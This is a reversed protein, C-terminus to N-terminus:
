RCVEPATQNTATQAVKLPHMKKHVHQLWHYQSYHYCCCYSHYCCHHFYWCCFCCCSLLLLTRTKAQLKRRRGPLTIHIMALSSESSCVCVCTGALSQNCLCSRCRRGKVALPCVVWNGRTRPDGLPEVCMCVPAAHARHVGTLLLLLLM